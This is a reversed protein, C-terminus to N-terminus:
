QASCRKRVSHVLAPISMCSAVIKTIVANCCPRSDGEVLHLEASAVGGPAIQLLICALNRSLPHELTIRIVSIGDGEVDIIQITSYQQSVPSSAFCSQILSNYALQQRLVQIVRLLQKPHTFNIDQLEVATEEAGSDKKLPRVFFAFVGSPVAVDHRHTSDKPKIQGAASGKFVENFLVNHLTGSPTLVSDKMDTMELISHTVSSPAAVSKSLHFMFTCPVNLTNSSDLPVFTVNSSGEEVRHVPRSPLSHSGLTTAIGVHGCVGHREAAIDSKLDLANEPSIFFTTSMLKGCERRQVLGLPHEMIVHPLDGEVKRTNSVALLDEEVACLAAYMSLRDEKPGPLDYIAVLGRLHRMFTAYRGTMLLQRLLPHARPEKGHGLKVESVLNEATMEVELFFNDCSIYCSQMGGSGGDCDFRLGCCRSIKEMQDIALPKGEGAPLLQSLRSLCKEM